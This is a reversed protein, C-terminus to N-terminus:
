DSWIKEISSERLVAILYGDFLFRVDPCTYGVSNIIIKTLGNRRFQMFSFRILLM